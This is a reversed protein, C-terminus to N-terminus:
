RLTCTTPDFSATTDPVDDVALTESFEIFGQRGGGPVTTRHNKAATKLHANYRLVDAMLEKRPRAKCAAFFDAVVKEHAPGDHSDSLHALLAAAGPLSSDQLSAKFGDRIRDPTMDAPALKPAVEVLACRTPSLIPRTFDVSLVDALFDEDIVHQALLEDIFSRDADGFAPYTFPKVSDIVPGHPGVLQRGVGDVVRQHNARVLATYDPTKIPIVAQAAKFGGKHARSSGEEVFDATAPLAFLEGPIPLTPSNPLIQDMTHLQM